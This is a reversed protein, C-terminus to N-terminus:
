DSVPATLVIRRSATVTTCGNSATVTVNHASGDEIRSSTVRVVATVEVSEGRAVTSQQPQVARSFGELEEVTFQFTTSGYPNNSTLRFPIVIFDGIEAMMEGSNESSFQFYEEGSLFSVTRETFYVFPNTETDQGEVQYTYTGVAPTTINGTWSVGCKDLM